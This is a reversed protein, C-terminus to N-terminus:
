AAECRPLRAAPRDAPWLQARFDAVSSQRAHPDHELARDVAEAVGAPLGPRVDALRRLRPEPPGALLRYALAGLSYLDSRPSGAECRLVEPAMYGYTGAVDGLYRPAEEGARCALGFDTLKAAGDSRRILVNGPSVDRHIVDHEHAFALAEAVQAVISIARDLTLQPGRALALASVGPVLEMVIFPRPVAGADFVPVILPHALGAWLEAELSFQRLCRADSALPEALVKVAVRRKLLEDRACYVNTMGGAGILSLLRYRGGLFEAPRRAPVPAAALPAVTLESREGYLQNRVAREVDIQTREAGGACDARSTAPSEDM